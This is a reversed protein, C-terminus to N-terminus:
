LDYSEARYVTVSAINQVTNITTVLTVSAHQKQLLQGNLTSNQCALVTVRQLAFTIIIHRM